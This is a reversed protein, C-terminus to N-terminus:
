FSAGLYFEAGLFCCDGLPRIDRSHGTLFPFSHLSLTASETAPRPAADHPLFSPPLPLRGLLNTILLVSFNQLRPPYRIMHVCPFCKRSAQRSAKDTSHQRKNGSHFVVDGCYRTLTVLLQFRARWDLGMQLSMNSLVLRQGGNRKQVESDQECARTANKIKGIQGHTTEIEFARHVIEPLPITGPLLIGSAFGVM